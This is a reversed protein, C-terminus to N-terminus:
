KFHEARGTGSCEFVVEGSDTKWVFAKDDEGGSVAFSQSEGAVSVCFVSGSHKQFVTHADDRLPGAAAEMGSDADDDDDNDQEDGDYHQLDMEGLEGAINGISSFFM